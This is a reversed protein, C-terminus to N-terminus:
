RCSFFFYMKGWGLALFAFRFRGDLSSSFVGPLGSAFTTKVSRRIRSGFVLVRVLQAIPARGKSKKMNDMQVYIFAVFALANSSTSRSPCRHESESVGHRM